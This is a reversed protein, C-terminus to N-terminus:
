SLLFCSKKTLWSLLVLALIRSQGTSFPIDPWWICKNLICAHTYIAKIYFWGFWGVLITITVFMCVSMQNCKWVSSTSPATLFCRIPQKLMALLCFFLEWQSIRVNAQSSPSWQIGSTQWLQRVAPVNIRTESNIFKGSNSSCCLSWLIQVSIDVLYHCIYM